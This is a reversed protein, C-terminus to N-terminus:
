SSVAPDLVAAGSVEGAALRTLARNADELAFAEVDTRIPITVALEILDAVDERTVNAM